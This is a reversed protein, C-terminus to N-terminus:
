KIHIMTKTKEFLGNKLEYYFVGNPIDIESLTISYEGAELFEGDLIVKILQGQMDYIKLYVPQAYEMISYKIETATQWPNPYNQYLASINDSYRLTSIDCSEASSFLLRNTTEELNYFLISDTSFDYNLVTISSEQVDPVTVLFKAIGREGAYVEPLNEYELILEGPTEEVIQAPTYQASTFELLKLARPNWNLKTKYNVDKLFYTTGNFDISIDKEYAIPVEIVEGNQGYITDLPVIFSNPTGSKAFFDPAFGIGRVSTSDSLKCRDVAIQLDNSIANPSKPCYRIIVKATDGPNVVEFGGVIEIIELTDIGLGFVEEVNFYIQGDNLIDITDIKCDLVQTPPFSLNNLISFSVEDVIADAEDGNALVNFLIIDQTDFSISDVKIDSTDRFINQPILRVNSSPKLSDVACFNRVKYYDAQPTSDVRNFSPEFGDCKNEDLLYDSTIDLYKYKTKDYELKFDIDVVTAPIARNTYIPVLLTDCEAIQIEDLDLLHNEITFDLGFAPAYGEATIFLTSDITTCPSSIHLLARAEYIRPARPYFDFKINLSDLSTVFIPFNRLMSDSATFVRENPSFTVSDIRIIEQNPNISIDDPVKVYGYQPESLTDVRTPPFGTTDPTPEFLLSQKGNLYINFDRPGWGEGSARIVVNTERAISDRSNIQKPCFLLNVSDRSDAPIEYPWTGNPSFTSRWSFDTSKPYTLGADSLDFIDISIPFSESENNLYFQKTQCECPAAFGMALDRIGFELPYTKAQGDLSSTEIISCPASTNVIISDIAKVPTTPSYEAILRITDGPALVRGAVDAPTPYVLRIDRNGFRLDISSLEVDGKNAVNQLYLSRTVTEGVEIVGFSSNNSIFLKPLVSTGYIKSSWENGNGDEFRLFARDGREQAVDNPTYRAVFDLSTGAALDTTFTNLNGIPQGNIETIAFKGNPDDLIFRSLSVSASSINEIKGAVIESGCGLVDDVRSIEPQFDLAELIGNGRIDLTYTNNCATEWAILKDIYNIDNTPRFVIDVNRTQLPPITIRNGGAFFYVNSQNLALTLNLPLSSKNRIPVSITNEQGVVIDGYDINGIEFQFDPNIGTGTLHVPYELLCGSGSRVKFIVTDSFFGETRPYFLFFEDSVSTEAKITRPLNRDVRTDIFSDDYIIEEIQIDQSSLNDTYYTLARSYENICITGFDHRLVADDGSRETIQFVDDVTIQSPFEYYPATTCQDNTFIRIKTDYDGAVNPNIFDIAIDRFGGVPVDFPPQSGANVRWLPDTSVVDNVRLIRNTGTVDSNNYIRVIETKTQETNCYSNVVEYDLTDQVNEYELAVDSIRTIYVKDNQYVRWGCNNTRQLRLAFRKTGVWDATIRFYFELIGSDADLRTPAVPVIDSNNQNIWRTKGEEDIIVEWARADIKLDAISCLSTDEVVFKYLKTTECKLTDPFSPAEYIKFPSPQPFSGGTIKADRLSGTRGNDSADCLTFSNTNDNARYYFVLGNSNVSHNLYSNCAIWEDSKIDEWLKIEDMEGEFSPWAEADTVKNSSGIMMGLNTQNPRSLGPILYAQNSGSSVLEGDIYIRGENRTPEFVFALHVWNNYYNSFGPATIRTNDLNKDENKGMALPHELEFVLNQGEDVYIVWSDNDEENPGWIGGIYTRRGNTPKMKVKLEFTFGDEMNSFFNRYDLFIHSRSGGNPKTFEVSRDTCGRRKDCNAPQTYSM